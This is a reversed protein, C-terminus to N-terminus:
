LNMIKNFEESSLIGRSKGLKNSNTSPIINKNNKKNNDKIIRKPTKEIGEQIIEIGGQNKEIPYQNIEIHRKKIHKDERIYTVKIYGRHELGSVWKSVTSPDVDYLKAFYNNSAWCIGSKNTLSTIESFLLKQSSSLSKDYRVNATIVSYYSPSENQTNYAM